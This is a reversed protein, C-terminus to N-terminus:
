RRRAPAMIASLACLRGPSLTFSVDRLAKVAGYSKTVGSVSVTSNM